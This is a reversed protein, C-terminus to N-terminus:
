VCVGDRKRTYVIYKGIEIYLTHTLVYAENEDRFKRTTPVKEFFEKGAFFFFTIYKSNVHLYILGKQM